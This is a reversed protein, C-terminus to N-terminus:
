TGSMQPAPVSDTEMQEELGLPCDWATEGPAEDENLVKSMISKLYVNEKVEENVRNLLETNGADMLLSVLKEFIALLPFAYELVSHDKKPSDFFFGGSHLGFVRGHADFVPSGSSGHYMFSNYTVHINALPDKEIVQKISYVTFLNSEYDQLNQEVAQERQEKRIISTLDIKKVGGAPHGIICAGGDEPLDGSKRLLGPPISFPETQQQTESMRTETILKLVVFDLTDDGIPTIAPTGQHFVKAEVENKSTKEYNFEATIKIFDLWDNSQKFFPRFLHANTLVFNEFLVFGTGKVTFSSNREEVKLLCVSKGLNLLEELTKVDSFSNQIKGFGEKSVRLAETLSQGPFRKQMLEKLGKFQERLIKEIEQINVQKDSVGTKEMAARLSIGEDQALEIVSQTEENSQSDNSARPSKQQEPNVHSVEKKAPKSQKDKPLRVRFCRNDMEKSIPATCKILTDDENDQLSFDNLDDVFRGDQKIAELVTMGEKAYVRFSRFKVPINTCRFIRKIKSKTNDAGVNEVKFVCYQNREEVDTTVNSCEVAKTSTSIILLQDKDICSCPFHTPLLSAEAGEGLMIIINGDAVTVKEIFENELQSKIAELLPQPRKCNIRHIDKASRFQVRFHHGHKVSSSDDTPFEEKVRTKAKVPSVGGEAM